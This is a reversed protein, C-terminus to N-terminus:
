RRLRERVHRHFVDQVDVRMREARALLGPRLRLPVQREPVKVVVDPHLLLRAFLRSYLGHYMRDLWPKRHFHHLVYPAVGDQYSCALTDQDLLRLGRFPPNPALRNDLAITREAAVRTCLIANLVDQEPYLFPYDRVNGRAFTLDIDVRSQRDDMLCLVEAGVSGGLFVLSSSVYPRRQATGLDLIEGWEPVFREKDNRFAVVGCRSAQEILETLPRTVIMDVDILAMAEAPHALPAVTKLLWPPADRQGSVLTVHPALLERQSESMGCDLLFVPETHGVIRLSNVMAVAGLFYREDAVCYFAARTGPRAAAGGV